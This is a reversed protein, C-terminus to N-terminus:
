IEKWSTVSLINNSYSATVQITRQFNRLTAISTIIKPNTGVVTVAATGDGVTLSEGTYNPNRLLRIIANEAGSEAISYTITAQEFKSTSSSNLLVVVTAASTITIAIIMFILLMVLTQGKQSTHKM